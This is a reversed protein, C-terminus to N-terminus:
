KEATEALNHSFHIWYYKSFRSLFFNVRLNNGCIALISENTFNKVEKTWKIQCILKPRFSCLQNTFEESIPLAIHSYRAFKLKTKIDQFSCTSPDTGECQLKLVQNRGRYNYDNGDIIFIEKCLIFIPIENKVKWIKILQAWAWHEYREMRVELNPKTSGNFGYKEDLTTIYESCKLGHYHYQYDSSWM